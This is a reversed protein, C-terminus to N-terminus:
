CIVASPSPAVLCLYLKLADTVGITSFLMVVLEYQYKDDM